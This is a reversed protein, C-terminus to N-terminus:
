GLQNRAKGGHDIPGPSGQALEYRVAEALSVRLGSPLSRNSSWLLRRLAANQVVRLDASSKMSVGTALCWAAVDQWFGDLRAWAAQGAPGLWGEIAAASHFGDFGHSTLNQLDELFSLASGSAVDDGLLAEAVELTAVARAPEAAAVGFAAARCLDDETEGGASRRDM